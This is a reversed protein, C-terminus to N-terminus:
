AAATRGMQILGFINGETDKLYAMSGVGPIPFRPLALVGGLAVGKSVYGDLDDVDVTNVHSIVAQQDATLPCPRRIMGGNIGPGDAGTVIMWYETPGDWKKIDWGFLDTYFKAARDPDDAHVEFHV